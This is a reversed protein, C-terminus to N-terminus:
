MEAFPKVYPYVAETLITRLGLKHYLALAPEEHVALLYGTAGQAEIDRLAHGVLAQAIGRRRYAEEVFVSEVRGLGQHVYTVCRAVPRDDVMAMYGNVGPASVTQYHLKHMVDDPSFADPQKVSCWRLFDDHNLAVEIKIAPDPAPIAAQQIMLDTSGWESKKIFGASQLAAALSAPSAHADLYVVADMDLSYFFHEIDELASQVHAEHMRFLGAHNPDSRNTLAPNTYIVYGDRPTIRSITGFYAHDHQWIADINM